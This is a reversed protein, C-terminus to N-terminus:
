FFLEPYNESAYTTAAEIFEDFMEESACDDVTIQLDGDEGEEIEAEVSCGYRENIADEAFAVCDEIQEIAESNGEWISLLDQITTM